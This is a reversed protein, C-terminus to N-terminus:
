YPEYLIHASFTGSIFGTGLVALVCEGLTATNGLQTWNMNPAAVWRIIGGNLNLGLNLRPDTTVNTTTPQTAAAIFTVPASAMAGASSDIPGDAATAIALATPTTEIVSVHSVMLGAAASSSAFGSVLVENWDIRQTAAAGKVAMYQSTTLLTNTATGTGSTMNVTTFARTHSAM